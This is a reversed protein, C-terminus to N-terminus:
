GILCKGQEPLSAIPPQPNMRNVQRASKKNAPLNTGSSTFLATLRNPHKRM